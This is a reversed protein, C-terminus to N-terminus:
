TAGGRILAALKRLRRTYGKWGFVKDDSEGMWGQCLEAEDELMKSARETAEAEAATIAAVIARELEGAFGEFWEPSNGPKQRNCTVIISAARDTPTM